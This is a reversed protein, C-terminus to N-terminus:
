SEGRLKGSAADLFAREEPTLAALGSTGIKALIEDLRRKDEASLREPAEAAAGGGGALVRFGAQRARERRRQWARWWGRVKADLAYRQLGVGFVAGSLHYLHGWSANPYTRLAGALDVLGAFGVLVALPVPNGAIYVSRRPNGAVVFGALALAAGSAGFVWADILLRRVVRESEAVTPALGGGHVVLRVVGARATTPPPGEAPEISPGPPISVGQEALWTRVRQGEVATGLSEEGRAAGFVKAVVVGVWRGAGDVLAGGSNGPNVRGEFVIWHPETRIGACRGSTMFQTSTDGGLSGYGIAYLMRGVPPAEPAAPLVVGELPVEVLALDLQPSRALVKGTVSGAGEPQVEVESAQDVVHNNTVLLRPAVFFGSGTAIPAYSEPLKTQTALSTLGTVLSGGLYLALLTGGGREEEVRRGLVYVLGCALLLHVVDLHFFGGLLLTWVRGSGLAGRWVLANRLLWDEGADFRGVLFVVLCIAILATTVPPFRPLGRPAPAGPPPAAGGMYDRNHLAM